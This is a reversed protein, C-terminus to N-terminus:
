LIVRHVKNHDPEEGTTKTSAPPGHNHCTQLSWPHGDHLPSCVTAHSCVCEEGTTVPLSVCVCVPLSLRPNKEIM